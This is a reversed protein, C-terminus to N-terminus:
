KSLHQDFAKVFLIMQPEDNLKFKLKEERRIARLLPRHQKFLRHMARYNTVPLMQEDVLVYFLDQSKFDLGEPRVLSQKTRKALLSVSDGEYLMDYFGSASPLSLKKFIHGHLEFAELQQIDLIIGDWRHPTPHQMVLLEKELDFVLPVNAYHQGAFLVAGPTWFKSSFFPHAAQARAVMPYVKGQMLPTNERGVAGDFWNGFSVEADSSLHSQSWVFRPSVAILLILFLWYRKM